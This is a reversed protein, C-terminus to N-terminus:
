QRHRDCPANKAEYYFRGHNTDVWVMPARSDAVGFVVGGSFEALDFWSLDVETPDLVCLLPPEEVARTATVSADQEDHHAALLSEAHTLCDSVPAEFRVFAQTASGFSWHVYQVNSASDPLPIPCHERAAKLAQPGPSQHVLPKRIAPTGWGHNIHHRAFLVVVLGLVGFTAIWIRNLM